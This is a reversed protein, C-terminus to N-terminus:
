FCNSFGHQVVHCFCSYLLAPRLHVGFTHGDSTKATARALKSTHASEQDGGERFCWSKVAALPVTMPRTKKNESSNWTLLDWTRGASQFFLHDRLADDDGQKGKLIVMVLHVFMSVTWISVIEKHLQNSKFSKKTNRNEKLISTYMTTVLYNLGQWTEKDTNLGSNSCYNNLDQPNTQKNM